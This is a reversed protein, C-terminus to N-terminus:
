PRMEKETTMYNIQASSLKKSYYAISNDNQMICAGMQYDSSDTYVDFCKNHDRFASHMNATM